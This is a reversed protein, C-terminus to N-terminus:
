ALYTVNHFYQHWHTRTNFDPEFGPGKPGITLCELSKVGLCVIFSKIQLQILICTRHTEHLIPWSNNGMNIEQCPICKCIKSFAMYFPGFQVHQIYNYHASCM